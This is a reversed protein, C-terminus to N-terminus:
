PMVGTRLQLGTVVESPMPLGEVTAHSQASDFASNRDIRHRLRRLSSLKWVGHQTVVSGATSGVMLRAADFATVGGSAQRQIAVAAGRRKQGYRLRSIRWGAM